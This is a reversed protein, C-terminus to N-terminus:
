VSFLVNRLTRADAASDAHAPVVDGRRVDAVSLTAQLRRATCAAGFSAFAPRPTGANGAFRSAVISPLSISKARCSILEHARSFRITRFLRRCKDGPRLPCKRADCPFHAGFTATGSQRGNDPWISFCFRAASSNWNLASFFILINLDSGLSGNLWEHALRPGILREGGCSFCSSTDYAPGLRSSNETLSNLDAQIAIGLNICSKIGMHVNGAAEDGSSEKRRGAQLCDSGIRRDHKGGFAAPM